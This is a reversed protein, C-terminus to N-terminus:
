NKEKPMPFQVGITRLTESAIELERVTKTPMAGRLLANDIAVLVVELAKMIEDAEEEPKM